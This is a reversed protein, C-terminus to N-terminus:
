IRTQKQRNINGFLALPRKVQSAAKKRKYSFISFARRAHSDYVGVYLPLDSQVRMVTLVM